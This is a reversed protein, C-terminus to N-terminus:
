NDTTHSHNLKLIARGTIRSQYLDEFVQNAEEINHISYAPPKVQLFDFDHIKKLNETKLYYLFGWARCKVHFFTKYIYIYISVKKEAVLDVLEMLQKLTGKPIGVISQQKAALVNLNISVESMTNGGVLILGEQLVIYLM